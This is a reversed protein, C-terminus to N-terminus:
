PGQHKFRATKEAELDPPQFRRELECHYTAGIVARNERIWDSLRLTGTPREEPVYLLDALLGEIEEETLIVDGILKGLFHVARRCIRPSLNLMRRKKGISEGIMSLLERYTFVEPGLAHLTVNDRSRAQEVVLAALDDVHVPQVHYTGDGFVGFVPLRRLAWALNNILIDESGFLVAPRVIAHCLGSAKLANEMHGKASFYELPSLPDANTISIHVVREVGAMKAAEFLALTNRAAEALSFGSHNFRVWYTNYLVEVDALSEAMASVDTFAYPRIDVQGAFPDPRNPSGTLTVVRKKEDLLRKAIYKGSFGFAGTVAHATKNPSSIGPKLPTTQSM